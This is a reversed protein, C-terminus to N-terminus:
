PVLITSGTTTGAEIARHAEAAESLAFRQGIAPKIAGQEILEFLRAAGAAREDPSTYYDYLKPRTVFLSGHQNLTALKVDAVPGSANGYSVILGRRSCSALSAEWTAKGVGDLVVPVGEGGTIERVRGAIDDNRSHLVHDVGAARAIEVKEDSGVTGIVTAGIAKLWAAAIQGVGGAAAHLLVTWGPRVRACREILFEATCGKLLVAAADEAGIADPLKFLADAPLVRATAYAGLAPGYTAVRDGVAFREVGPGVAEIVGAGELGLGSPLTVPYLGTRHYTDIFNLGAAQTRMRVEGEGPEALETAVWEIVEPGGTREIRAAHEM